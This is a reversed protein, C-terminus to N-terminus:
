VEEGVKTQSGLPTKLEPLFGEPYVCIVTSGMHFIGLEDGASMQISPEYHKKQAMPKLFSQNTIINKDFSLSIKGVNTAGVMVVAVPGRPTKYWIVVRENVAFLNSISKVSWENVPWLTGPVYDISVIEGSIPSHVRHYDTPCLYYTLVKGGTFEKCDHINLFKSLSYNKGKAQVLLDSDVSQVSTLKSDAPHVFMGKIPRLNPKLRRTFVGGIHPYHDFDFEAESMNIRYRNIFWSKAKKNLGGPLRLHVLKGTVFSLWRKPLIYLLVGLILEKM